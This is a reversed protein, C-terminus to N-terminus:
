AGRAQRCALHGGAVPRHPHIARISTTLRPTGSRCSKAAFPRSRRERGKQLLWNPMAFRTRRTRHDKDLGLAISMGANRFGSSTGGCGCFFDVVRIKRRYNSVTVVLLICPNHCHPHNHRNHPRERTLVFFPM